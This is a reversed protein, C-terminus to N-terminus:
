EDKVDRGRYDIRIDSRLMVYVVAAGIVVALGYNSILSALVTM